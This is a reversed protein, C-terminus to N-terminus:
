RQLSSGSQTSRPSTMEQVVYHLAGASTGAAGFQFLDNAAGTAIEALPLHAEAWDIVRRQRDADSVSVLRFVMGADLPEHLLRRFGVDWLDVGVANSLEWSLHEEDRTARRIGLPGDGALPSPRRDCRM